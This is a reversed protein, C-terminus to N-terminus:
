QELKQPLTLSSCLASNTITHIAELVVDKGTKSIDIGEKYTNINNARVISFM